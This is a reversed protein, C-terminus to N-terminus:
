AAKLAPLAPPLGRLWAEARALEDSTVVPVPDSLIALLVERDAQGNAIVDRLAERTEREARLQAALAAILRDKPLLRM